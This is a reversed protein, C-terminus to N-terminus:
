TETRDAAKRLAPDREGAFVAWVIRGADPDYEWFGILRGRDLIAHSPLDLLAATKAMTREVAAAKDVDAPDLLSRVDRRTAAIGDLSSVFAYKPEGPPKFKRYAGADEPLMNRSSEADVVDLGLTAGCGESGERGTRQVM